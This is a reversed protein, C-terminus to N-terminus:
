SPRVLFLPQNFEVPQGNQVLIREVVGAVESEIENMLKMAEVICVVQGAEIRQNTEVYPQSTPSSARYFTGVMPSHITVLGATDIVDPASPLAQAAKASSAPAGSERAAAAPAAAAMPAPAAIPVLTTEGGRHNDAKKQIRVRSWWRRVELENIQSEEVLKILRRIEEVRM